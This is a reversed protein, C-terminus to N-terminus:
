GRCRARWAAGAMRAGPGAAGRRRPVRALLGEMQDADEFARPFLAAWRRTPPTSSACLRSRARWRLRASGTWPPLPCARARVRGPGEAVRAAAAPRVPLARPIFPRGTPPDDRYLRAWACACRAAAARARLVLGLGRWATSGCGPTISGPCSRPQAALGARGPLGVDVDPRSPLDRPHPAVPQAAFLRAGPWRGSAPLGREVGHAELWALFAPPTTSM